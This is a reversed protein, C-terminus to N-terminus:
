HTELARPLDALMRRVIRQVAPPLDRGSRVKKLGEASIPVLLSQWNVDIVPYPAWHPLQGTLEHPQADPRTNWALTDWGVRAQHVSQDVPNTTSSGARTPEQHNANYVLAQAFSVRGDPHSGRFVAPEGQLLAPRSWAWGMVAFVRDAQAPEVAWREHGKALPTSEQLVYLVIGRSRPLREGVSLMAKQIEEALYRPAESLPAYLRFQEAIPDRHYLVWPWAARVLQTRSVNDAQSLSRGRNAHPALPDPVVPLSRPVIGGQLNWRAVVAKAADAAVLPTDAVVERAHRNLAPLSETELARVQPDLLHVRWEFMELYQYELKLKEIMAEIAPAAPGSVSLAAYLAELKRELNRKAKGIAGGGSVAREAADASLPGVLAEHLTIYATLEGAVHNLACLENLGHEMWLAGAAAAADAAGQRTQADTTQQGLNLLWVSLLAFFLVCVLHTAPMWGAEDGALTRAAHRGRCGMSGDGPLEVCATM